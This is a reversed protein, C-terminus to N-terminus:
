AEVLCCIIYAGPVVTVSQEERVVIPRKAKTYHIVSGINVGIAKALKGNSPFHTIENTTINRIMVPTIKRKHSVYDINLIECLEKRKKRRVYKAGSAKAMSQLERLPYYMDKAM